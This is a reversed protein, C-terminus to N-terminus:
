RQHAQRKSPPTSVNSAGMQVGVARSKEPGSEKVTLFMLYTLAKKKKPVSLEHVNVLEIVARNHLQQLDAKVAEEARTGFMKLGRKMLVQTMVFGILANQQEEALEESPVGSTETRSREGCMTEATADEVGMTEITADEFQSLAAVAGDETDHSMGADVSVPGAHASARRQNHGPGETLIARMRRDAVARAEKVAFVTVLVTM